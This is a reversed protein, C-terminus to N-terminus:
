RARASPSRRPGCPDAFARGDDARLDRGQRARERAHTSGRGHEPEQRAGAADPPSGRLRGRLEAPELDERQWGPALDTRRARSRAAHTRRPAGLRVRLAQLELGTAAAGTDRARVRRARGRLRRRAGERGRDRERPRRRGGPGLPPSQALRRRHRELVRRSRRRSGRDARADQRSARSGGSPDSAEAIGRRAPIRVAGGRAHRPRTRSARARRLLRRGEPSAECRRARTRARARPRPLWAMGRPRPAGESRATGPARRSRPAGAAGRREGGGPRARRVAHPRRRRGRLHGDGSPGPPDGPAGDDSVVRGRGSGGAGIASRARSRRPLVAGRRRPPLRLRGHREARDRAAGDRVAREQTPQLPLTRPGPGRDAGGTGSRPRAREGRLLREGGGRDRLQGLRPLRLERLARPDTGEHAGARPPVRAGGRPAEAHLEAGQRRDPEERAAAHDHERGAGRRRGDREGLVRARHRLRRRGSAQLIPPGRGRRVGGLHHGRARLDPGLGAARHLVRRPDLRGGRSGQLEDATALRPLELPQHSAHQPYEERAVALCRNGGRDRPALGPDGVAAPPVLAAM